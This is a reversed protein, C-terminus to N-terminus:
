DNPVHVTRRVTAGGVAEWGVVHGLNISMLDPRTAPDAALRELLDVIAAVPVGDPRISTIGLLAGPAAERCRRLTEGYRAPDATWDGAPARAHLHIAAAGARSARAAEAAIEDPEIPV